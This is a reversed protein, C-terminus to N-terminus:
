HFSWFHNDGVIMSSKTDANQIKFVAEGGLSGLFVGEGGLLGLKLCEMSSQVKCDFRATIVDHKAFVGGGAITEWQDLTFESNSMPKFNYHHHKGGICVGDRSDILWTMVLMLSHQSGAWKAIFVILHVLEVHRDWHLALLQRGAALGDPQNEWRCGAGACMWVVKITLDRYLNFRFVCECM